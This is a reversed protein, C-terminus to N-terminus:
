KNQIQIRRFLHKGLWYKSSNQKIKLKAEESHKYGLPSGATSYINFYPKYSDIYFQEQQILDMPDCGSLIFFRLDSQRYKNFHNQLKGSHHKNKKLERLHEGWRKNINVSSGIYYREPKCISQIKYIGSIDEM